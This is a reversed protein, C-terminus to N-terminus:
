QTLDLVEGPAISIDLRDRALHLVRALPRCLVPGEGELPIQVPDVLAVELQDALREEFGVRCDGLQSHVLEESRPWLPLRTLWARPRRSGLARRSARDVDRPPAEESAKRRRCARARDASRAARRSVQAPSWRSARGSRRLCPPYSRGPTGAPWRRSTEASSGAVTM